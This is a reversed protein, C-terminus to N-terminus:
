SSARGKDYDCRAVYFSYTVDHISQRQCDTPEARCRAELIDAVEDTLRGYCLGVLLKARRTDILHTLLQRLCTSYRIKEPSILLIRLAEEPNDSTLHHTFLATFIEPQLLSLMIRIGRIV